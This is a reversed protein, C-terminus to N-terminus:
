STPASFIASPLPRIEQVPVAKASDSKMKTNRPTACRQTPSRRKRERHSGDPSSSTGRSPRAATPRPTDEIAAWQGPTPRTTPDLEVHVELPSQITALPYQANGGLRLGGYTPRSRRLPQDGPAALRYRVSRSMWRRRRSRTFACGNVSRTTPWFNRYNRTRQHLGTTTKCDITSPGWYPTDSPDFTVIRM